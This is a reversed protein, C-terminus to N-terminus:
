SSALVRIESYSYIQLQHNRRKGAVVMARAVDKADIAKYKNPTMFGLLPALKQAIGEGFRRENRKGLLLSPRFIGKTRIRSQSLFEDVEGKIQLYFNKSKTDAGISSVLMFSSVDNQEAQKIAMIPIDFDIKRYDSLNPTKSRTTGIACFVTDTNQFADSFTEPRSFDVMRQTVKSSVIELESRNLLLVEDFHDDNILFNLIESGILGSAGLLIAKRKEM